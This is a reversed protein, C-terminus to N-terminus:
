RQAAAKQVNAFVSTGVGADIPVELAETVRAMTMYFGCTLIAEVIERHSYHKAVAQFVADEVRVTEVVQQGFALIAAEAESFVDAALDLREIAAIQADTLGVQTCIPRHQVWEYEGGELKAVLMVLLERPGDGLLQRGLIRRGLRLQPDATEVAHNIVRVLNLTVEGPQPDPGLLPVRSM